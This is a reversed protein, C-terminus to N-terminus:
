NSVVTERGLRELYTLVAAHGERDNAEILRTLGPCRFIEVLWRDSLDREHAARALAGFGCFMKAEPSRPSVARSLHDRAATLQTWCGPDRIIDCARSVLSNGLTNV